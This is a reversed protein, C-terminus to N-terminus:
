TCSEEELGASKILLNCLKHTSGKTNNLYFNRKADEPQLGGHLTVVTGKSRYVLDKTQVWGPANTNYSEQVWDSM